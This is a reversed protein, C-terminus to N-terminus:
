SIPLANLDEERHIGYSQIVKLEQLDADIKKGHDWADLLAVIFPEATNTQIEADGGYDIRCGESTYVAEYVVHYLM